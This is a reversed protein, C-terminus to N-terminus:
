IVTQQLLAFPSSSLLKRTKDLVEFTRSLEKKRIEEAFGQDIDQFALQYRYLPQYYREQLGEMAILFPMAKEELDEACTDECTDEDAQFLKDAAADILSLLEMCPRIDKEPKESKAIGTVLFAAYVPNLVELFSAYEDLLEQDEKVKEAEAIVVCRLHELRGCGLQYEMGRCRKLLTERIELCLQRFYEKVSDTVECEEDCIREYMGYANMAALVVGAHYTLATMDAAYNKLSTAVSRNQELNSIAERNLKM